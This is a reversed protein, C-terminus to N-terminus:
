RVPIQAANMSTLGHKGGRGGFTNNTGKHSTSCVKRRRGGLGGSRRLALGEREAQEDIEHM